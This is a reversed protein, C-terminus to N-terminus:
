VARRPTSAAGARSKPPPPTAPPAKAKPAPGPPRRAPAPTGDLAPQGAPADKAPEPSLVTAANLDADADARLRAHEEPWLRTIAARREVDPLVHFACRLAPWSPVDPWRPRTPLTAAAARAGADLARAVDAPSLVPRTDRDERVLPETM